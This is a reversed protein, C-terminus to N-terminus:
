PRLGGPSIGPPSTGVQGATRELGAAMPPSRRVRGEARERHREGLSSEPSPRDQRASRPEFPSSEAVSQGRLLPIKGSIGSVPPLPPFTLWPLTRFSLWGWRPPQHWSTYSKGAREGYHGAPQPFRSANELPHPLTGPTASLPRCGEMGRCVPPRPSIPTGPSSPPSKWLFPRGRQRLTRLSM